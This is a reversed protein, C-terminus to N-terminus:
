QRQGTAFQDTSIGFALLSEDSVRLVEENLCVKASTPGVEIRQAIDKQTSSSAATCFTM